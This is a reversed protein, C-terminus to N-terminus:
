KKVDEKKIVFNAAEALLKRNTQKVTGEVEDYEGVIWLSYDGPFKNFPHKEDKCIEGFDRVALAPKPVASPVSFVEGKKDFTAILYYM